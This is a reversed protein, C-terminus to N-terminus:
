VGDFYECYVQALAKGGIFSQGHAGADYDTTTMQVAWGSGNDTAFVSFNGGAYQDQTLTLEIRRDGVYRASLDLQGLVYSQLNVQQPTVIIKPTGVADGNAPNGGCNPKPVVDGADVVFVGRSVYKPLRDSVWGAVPRLNQTNSGLRIDGAIVKSRQTNNSAGDVGNGGFYVAGDGTAADAGRNIFNTNVSYHAILKSFHAFDGYDLATGAAAVPFGPTAAGTIGKIAKTEILTSNYITSSEVHGVELNNLVANNGSLWGNFTINTADVIDYNGMNLNGTMAYLGDRRLYVADYNSSYLTRYALQGAQNISTFNTAPLSWGANLGTVRAGDFFTMGASAGAKRAAYGLWDYRIAGSGDVIPGDTVVLGRLSDVGENRIQLVYGTNLANLTNFSAPLLRRAPLDITGGTSIPVGNAAVGQLVSLPVTVVSGDTTLRNVLLGKNQNIYEGLAKGVEEIQEGAAESRLTETRRKENNIVGLYILSSLGLVLILEILSFGARNKKRKILKMIIGKPQGTAASYLDCPM